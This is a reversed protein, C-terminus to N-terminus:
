DGATGGAKGADGGSGSAPSAEGGGSAKEGGGGNKADKKDGGNNAAGKNRFDTVYWGNGKLQFGAASILKKLESKGCQPCETLPAESMKQLVELEHGCAQCAYEYIPM